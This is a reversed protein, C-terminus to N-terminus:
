TFDERLLYAKTSGNTILFNLIDLFNTKDRPTTRLKVRHLYAYRRVLVELYYVTNSSVDRKDIDKLHRVINGIWFIGDELFMSGIQNLFQALASLVAPSNANDTAIRGFFLRERDKLSRWEKATEKWWPWALLYSHTVKTVNHGKPNQNIAKNFGLALIEWAAWFQNYSNLQDEASVIADLFTSMEETMVFNAAFPQVLKQVELPSRHLLFIALKNFLDYRLRYTEAPHDQEHRSSTLAVFEPLMQEIVGILFEDNTAYPIMGFVIQFNPLSLKSTFDVNDSNNGSFISELQKDNAGAVENLIELRESQSVFGTQKRVSDLKDDFAKKLTLFALIIQKADNPSNDWLNNTVAESAYEDVRKYEGIPTRDFLVFLLIYNFTDREDPFLKYLFPVAHIAAEVGDLIQYNYDSSLPRAAFSLIVEKCFQLDDASLKESHFRVLASCTFAPISYCRFYFNEDVSDQLKETVEKTERIVRPIDKDYYNYSGTGRRSDFKYHGWLSLPTYKMLEGFDQDAKNRDDQLEQSFQPNLNIFTGEDTEKVTPAMNRRDMRSILHELKKKRNQDLEGEILKTKLTDIINYMEKIRNEAQDESIDETSFFQYRIALHELCSKRHPEECTKIREEEFHKTRYDMGRGISYISKAQDESALRVADNYYFEPTTFLIKAVSFFKDPHALVVSCVVATLSASTTKTLIYIMQQEVEAIRNDSNAVAILYKELAMHMSQMLYPTVPSGSGRFMCWISNSIFHEAICKKASYVPVKMVDQGYKSAAYKKIAQNTFDIIFNVTEEFSAMLLWFTPTQYASAPFFDHHVSRSLGYYEEIGLGSNYFDRPENDWWLFRALKIVSKQLVMIASINYFGDNLLGDCLNSYKRATRRTPDNTITNIINQLEPRLEESAALIGRILDDTERYYFSKDKITREYIALLSQGALKTTAGKSTAHVWDLIVPVITEIQEEKLYAAEEQILAIIGKWGEGRPRTFSFNLAKDSKQYEVGPIIDQDIEKCAIRLLFCVRVLLTGDDSLLQTKFDEVFQQGHKSLLLAVLIEDRWIEEINHFFLSQVMRHVIESKSIIKQSLWSRFARRIPLSKGISQFFASDDVAKDYEADIIKELAWEEYIDHAIFYGTHNTDYFIIDDAQLQSLANTDEVVADVYFRGTKIREHVINLFTRERLLHINNSRVSANLVKKQWLTSKFKEITTVVNYQSQQQLYENLYFPNQLLTLLRTDAPLSFGHLSALVRLQTEDIINVNIISFPIRYVELFTFKLDELYSHRTTFILQWDTRILATVFEKFPEQNAIDALKEASDIIMLKRPQDSHLRIFDNMDYDGFRSFLETTNALKFEAAKFVYVPTTTYLDEYLLKILATKGSGGDGSVITIQQHNVASQLSLLDATRDIRIKQDQFTIESHIPFLINTAHTSIEDLFDLVTRGTSFFHESIHQNNPQALQLEFHSPVRWEIEVGLKRGSSEVEQQLVSTLIGPKSSESFEQNLYFLLKSLNPHKQKAKDIAAILDNKNESLKTEYYKAQFGITHNNIKIPNTEIGTQNKYRFIGNSIGHEGCFLHYSLQEFAKQEKEYFKSKFVQWNIENM